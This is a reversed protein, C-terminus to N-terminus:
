LYFTMPTSRTANYIRTNGYYADGPIVTLYTSKSYSYYYGANFSSTYMKIYFNQKAPGNFIFEPGYYCSNMHFDWNWYSLHPIEAELTLEGGENKVYGTQEYTWIGTEDNYSWLGISDGAAIEQGTEPNYIDSAAKSKIKLGEGEIEAVKKGGATLEIDFLGASFFNGDVVEGDPGKVQTDLGGPFSELAAQEDAQYYVVEATVNGTVPSGDKDKLIANKPVVVEAKGDPAALSIESLTKGTVDAQVSKPAIITVGAPPNASSVLKISETVAGEEGIVIRKKLTLYGSAKATVLLELPKGDTPNNKPNVMANAFGDVSKLEAIFKGSMDVLKESSAGDFTLTVQNDRILSGTTADIFTFNITTNFEPSAVYIKVEELKKQDEPTCGFFLALLVPVILWQKLFKM